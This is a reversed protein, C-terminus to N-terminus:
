DLIRKLRSKIANFVDVKWLILNGWWIPQVGKVPTYGLGRLENQAIQNFRHHKLGSWKKWRDLPNFDASQEQPKWHVEKGNKSSIDSSGRVPTDFYHSQGGAEPDLGLFLFIRNLESEREQFLKEYQVILFEGETNTQKQEFELISRAAQSWETAAWNVSWGFSRSGSEAVARGDRVLIIVRASPFLDFVRHINRVSPTKSVLHRIDSSLNEGGPLSSDDPHQRYLFNLITEGFHKSLLSSPGVKEPVQWRDNWRSFVNEVYQDLFNSYHLFYDEKIADGAACDPHKILLDYLFNTGCRPMIGLIFIPKNSWASQPNNLHFKRRKTSVELGLTKM